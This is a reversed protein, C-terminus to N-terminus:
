LSVRYHSVLDMSFSIRRSGMQFMLSVTYSAVQWLYCSSRECLFTYLFIRKLRVKVKFASNCAQLTRTSGFM